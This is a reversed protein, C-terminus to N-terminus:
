LVVNFEARVPPALILAGPEVGSRETRTEVQLRYNGPPLGRVGLMVKPMADRFVAIPFTGHAVTRGNSDMLAYRADGIYAAAGTRQMPIRVALSDGQRAITPAQLALGTSMLGKRYYVPLITRVELALGVHIAATDRAQVALTGDHTTVVMRAWYEGEALSQPPRGLVRITQRALAPLTFRRPYATLWPAASAASSDGEYRVTFEGSSDTVVYGFVLGITVEIPQTGPNYLTVTGARSHDDIAVFHPAITAGQAALAGPIVLLALLRTRFRTM